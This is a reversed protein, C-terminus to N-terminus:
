MAMGCQVKAVIYEAEEATDLSLKQALDALSIRSYSVSMKRVGTKIVSHRLRQILLMTQDATFTTRNDAVVTNFAKVDGTRM